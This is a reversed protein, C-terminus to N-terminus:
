PLIEYLKAILAERERPDKESMIAKVVTSAEDRVAKSVTRAKTV